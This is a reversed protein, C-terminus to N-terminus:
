KLAYVDGGTGAPNDLTATTGSITVGKGHRYMAGNVVVVKPISPFVFITNSDDVTGSSPAMPSSLGGGRHIAGGFNEGVSVGPRNKLALYDLRAKGQLKELARAMSEASAHEMVIKGVIRMIEQKSMGDKLRQAAVREVEAVTIARMTEISPYDVDEMPTAGPDGQDGKVSEGPDGKLHPLSDLKKRMAKQFERMFADGLASLYRLAEKKAKELEKGMGDKEAEITRQITQVAIAEATKEMEQMFHWASGEPYRRAALYRRTKPGVKMGGNYLVDLLRGANM